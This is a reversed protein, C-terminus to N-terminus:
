LFNSRSSPTPKDENGSEKNRSVEGVDGSVNESEDAGNKVELNYKGFANKKPNTKTGTKEIWIRIQDRNELPSDKLAVENVLSRPLTVYWMPNKVGGKKVTALGAGIM